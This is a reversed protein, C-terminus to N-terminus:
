VSEIHRHTRWYALGLSQQQNLLLFTEDNIPLEQWKPQVFLTRLGFLSAIILSIEALWKLTKIVSGDFISQTFSHNPWDELSGIMGQSAQLVAQKVDKEILQPALIKSQIEQLGYLLSDNVQTQKGLVIMGQHASLNIILYAHKEPLQTVPTKAEWEAITKQALLAPNQTYEHILFVTIDARGQAAVQSLLSSLQQHTKEELVHASDVVRNVAIEAKLTFAIISCFCFVVTFAIKRLMGSMRM